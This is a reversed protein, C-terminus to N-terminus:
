HHVKMMESYLPAISAMGKTYRQTTVISAHGMVAQIVRESVGNAALWTATTHRADHLHADQIDARRCAAKFWRSIVGATVRRLGPAPTKAWKRVAAESVGYRRGIEINSLGEAQLAQIEAQDPRRRIPSFMFVPGVDKIGFVALAEAAQPLLPVVREKEGKGKVQCWPEPGDAHVQPWQLGWLESLRLGTWFAFQWLARREPDPEAQLLKDVEEPLLARPLLEPLKVVKRPKVKPPRELCRWDDEAATELAALIHSLYSRVTFPSRGQALLSNAWEQLRKQTISRLLTRRGLCAILSQLAKSDQKVTHPSLGGGKGRSVQARRHELYEDAFRHLTVTSPDLLALREKYRAEEMASARKQAELPDATELSRVVLRGRVRWRVYFIGNAADRIYPKGMSTM